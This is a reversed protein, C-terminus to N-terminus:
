SEDLQTVLILNGEGTGILKSYHGKGTVDEALILDGPGFLRKEGDSAEVEYDGKLFALFQHAPVPHWKADWNPPASFFLATKERRHCGTFTIPAPPAFDTPIMEGSVDEFHSEGNEDAYLRVYSYNPM